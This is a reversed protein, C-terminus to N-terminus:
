RLVRGLTSSLVQTLPDARLVFAGIRDVADGESLIAIRYDYSEAGVTAHVVAKIALVSALVMAIPTIWRGNAPARGKRAVGRSAIIGGPVAADRGGFREIRGYFEERQPDVVSEWLM